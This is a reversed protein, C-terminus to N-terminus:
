WTVRPPIIQYLRFSRCRLAGVIQMRLFREPLSHLSRKSLAPLPRRQRVRISGHQAPHPSPFAQSRTVCPKDVFSRSSVSPVRLRKERRWSTMRAVWDEDGTSMSQAQLRTQAERKRATSGCPYRLWDSYCVRYTLAHEQHLQGADSVPM